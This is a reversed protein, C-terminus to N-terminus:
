SKTAAQGARSMQAVATTINAEMAEMAQRTSKSMQEYGANANGFVSKMIAMFSESGAPGKKAAEGVMENMKRSVEALQVEAAKNFESHTNSAINVLYGSYALAKEFTPKTQATVLSFVEQPDKATLLQRATAASEEMSARAASINLNVLKEIGELTKSTLSTYMAFQAELNAKAAVSIHDQIPLM